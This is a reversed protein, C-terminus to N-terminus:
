RRGCSLYQVSVAGYGRGIRGGTDDDDDDSDDDSCDSDDSYDSSHSSSSCSSSSSGRGGKRSSKRPVHIVYSGIGYKYTAECARADHGHKSSISRQACADGCFPVWECKACLQATATECVICRFPKRMKARADGNDPTRLTEIAVAHAELANAHEESRGGCHAGAAARSARRRGGGGGGGRPRNRRNYRFGRWDRRNFRNANARWRRRNWARRNGLFLPPPGYAYDDYYAGYPNFLGATFAGLANAVGGGGGGYRGYRRYRGGDAARSQLAPPNAPHHKSM